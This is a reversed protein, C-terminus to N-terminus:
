KGQLCAPEHEDDAPRIRPERTISPELPFFELSQALLPQEVLANELPAANQPRTSESVPSSSYVCVAESLSGQSQMLPWCQHVLNQMQAGGGPIGSVCTLTALRIENRNDSAARL